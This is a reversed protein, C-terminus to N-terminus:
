LSWQNVYGLFAKSLLPDLQANLKRTLYSDLPDGLAVNGGEFFRGVTLERLIRAEDWDDPDTTFAVDPRDARGAIQVRVDPPQWRLNNNALLHIRYTWLLPQTTAAIREQEAANGFDFVVVGRDLAVDGTLMPLTHGNLRPGDTVAVRGNVQAVYFGSEIVT